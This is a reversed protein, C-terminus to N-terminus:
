RALRLRTSSLPTTAGFGSKRGPIPNCDNNGIDGLPAYGANASSAVWVMSRWAGGLVTQRFTPPNPYPDLKNHGDRERRRVNVPDKALSTLMTTTPGLDDLEPLQGRREGGGDEQLDFTGIRTMQGEEQPRILIRGSRAM